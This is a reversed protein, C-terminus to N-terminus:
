CTRSTWVVGFTRTPNKGDQGCLSLLLQLREGSSGLAPRFWDINSIHTNRTILSTWADCPLTIMHATAPGRHCIGMMRQYAPMIKRGIEDTNHLQM